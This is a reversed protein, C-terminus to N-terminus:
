NEEASLQKKSRRKMGKKVHFHGMGRKRAAEGFNREKKEGAKPVKKKREL